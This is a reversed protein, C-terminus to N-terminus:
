ASAEDSTKTLSLSKLYTLVMRIQGYTIADGLIQKIPSFKDYGVKEIRYLFLINRFINWRIYSFSEPFLTKPVNLERYILIDLYQKTCGYWFNM